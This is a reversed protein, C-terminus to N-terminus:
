KKRNNRNYSSSVQNAVDGPQEVVEQEVAYHLHDGQQHMQHQTTMMYMQQQQMMLMQQQALDYVPPVMPNTSRPMNKMSNREFESVSGENVRVREINRAAGLVDEGGSSRMRVFESEQPWDGRRQAQVNSVWRDRRTDKIRLELPGHAFDCKGKKRM